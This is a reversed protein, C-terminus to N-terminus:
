RHETLSITQLQKVYIDLALRMEEQFFPWRPNDTPYTDIHDLMNAVTARHLTCRGLKEKESLSRPITEAGTVIGRFFQTAVTHRPEIVGARTMYDHGRLAITGLRTLESGDLVLGCEERIERTVADFPTADGEDIKGGPFMLVGGLGGSAYELYLIDEGDRLIARAKSPEFGRTDLAEVKM